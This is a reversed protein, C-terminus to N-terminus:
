RQKRPKFKRTEIMSLTNPVKQIQNPKIWQNQYVAMRLDPKKKKHKFNHNLVSSIM